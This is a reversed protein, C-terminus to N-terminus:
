LGASVSNNILFKKFAAFSLSLMESFGKKKTNKEKEVAKKEPKAPTNGKKQAEEWERKRREYDENVFVVREGCKPCVSRSNHECGCKDCIM